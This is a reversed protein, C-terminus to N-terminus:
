QALIRALHLHYMSCSECRVNHRCRVYPITKHKIIIIIIIITASDIASTQTSLHANMARRRAGHVKVIGFSEENAFFM